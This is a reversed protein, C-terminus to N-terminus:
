PPLAVGAGFPLRERKTTTARLGALPPCMLQAATWGARQSAMSAVTLTHDRLAERPPRRLRGLVESADSLRIAHGSITTSQHKATALPCERVGLGGDLVFGGRLHPSHPKLPKHPTIQHPDPCAPVGLASSRPWALEAWM